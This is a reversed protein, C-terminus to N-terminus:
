AIGPQNDKDHELSQINAILCALTYVPKHTKIVYQFGLDTRKM